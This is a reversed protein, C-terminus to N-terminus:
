KGLDKNNLRIDKMLANIAQKGTRTEVKDIVVCAAHPICMYTHFVCVQEISLVNMHAESVKDRFSPDLHLNVKGGSHDVYQCSYPVLRHDQVCLVSGPTQRITM